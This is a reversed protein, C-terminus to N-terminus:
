PLILMLLKAIVVIAFVLIELCSMSLTILFCTIKGTGDIRCSGYNSGFVYVAWGASIALMLWLGRAAWGQPLGNM